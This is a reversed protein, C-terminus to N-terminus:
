NKSTNGTHQFSNRSRLFDFNDYTSKKTGIIELFVM